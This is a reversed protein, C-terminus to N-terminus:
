DIEEREAREAELTAAYDKPDQGLLKAIQLQESNLAIEGDKPPPPAISTGSSGLKPLGNVLAETNEANEMHMSIYRDRMAKVGVRKDRIAADVFAEAKGRATTERIENLETSVDALESQLSRIIQESDGGDTAVAEKAANLVVEANAGSECGLVKGIEDLQSQMEAAEGEPKKDTLAKIAELIAGESADEELGLAAALKKMFDMDPGEESNLATLGRLNQRNVLSANLIAVIKNSGKAALQFVPSIRRYSKSTVLDRGADTWEVRGWIGDERAQMERIWGRAPAAGGKPASRFTAHNEDIEIDGRLSMSNQIVAEADEIRFPGRNDYTQIEGAPVLHVWEPAQSGSLVPPLDMASMLAITSAAPKTMHRYEGDPRARKV